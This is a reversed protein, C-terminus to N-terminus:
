NENLRNIIREIDDINKATKIYGEIGGGNNEISIKSSGISAISIINKFVKGKEEVPSEKYKKISADLQSVVDDKSMLLGLVGIM